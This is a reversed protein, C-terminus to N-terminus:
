RENVLLLYQGLMASTVRAREPAVLAGIIFPRGILYREVFARVEGLSRASLNDGYGLFYDIGAVSWWNALAHALAAGRELELVTAVARRKKAVEIEQPQFYDPNHMLSLETSLATLAGPLKEFTTVGRFVLPGVNALTRYSMLASQFLGSDVLRQQFTAEQDNVLDELVGAAYTADLNDRVSPGRWAIEITVDQVAATAVVARSSDLPPIPLMPHAVFPDSARKWDGFRKRAMEFVQPAAVDGTVILAANNPVYYRRFLEELRRPTVGLLSMQEGITNKRPFASGWLLEDVARSLLFQPDSLRREFEGFVVFRETQLESQEFRPERVLGALVRVAEDVNQSPLTFYYTVTEDSTTGNYAANM